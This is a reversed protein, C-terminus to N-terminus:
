RGTPIAALSVVEYCIVLLLIAILIVILMVLTEMLPWRRREPPSGPLHTLDMQPLMRSLQREMQLVAHGPLHVTTQCTACTATGESGLMEPMLVMRCQPCRQTLVDIPRRHLYGNAIRWCDHTAKLSSLTERRM